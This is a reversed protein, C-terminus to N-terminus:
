ITLQAIMAVRWPCIALVGFVSGHSVLIILSKILVM